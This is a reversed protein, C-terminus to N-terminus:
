VQDDEEQKQRIKALLALDDMVEIEHDRCFSLVSEHFLHRNRTCIVNGKGAIATAVIMDDDADHPVIRPLPEPLHVTTAGDKLSEVLEDIEPDTRKHMERVREYRLVASLEVLLESSILLTHAAAIQEFLEGAPGRPSAIARTLVNTDLVVRM